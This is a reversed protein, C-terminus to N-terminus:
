RASGTLPLFHFTANFAGHFFRAADIKPNIREWASKRTGDSFASSIFIPQSVPVRFRNVRDM